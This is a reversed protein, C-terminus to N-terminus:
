NKYIMDKRLKSFCRDANFEEELIDKNIQEDSYLKEDNPDFKASLIRSIEQRKEETYREKLDLIHLALDKHYNYRDRLKLISIYEDYVKVGNTEFELHYKGKNSALEFFTSCTTEPVMKIPVEDDFRSGTYTPSIKLWEDKTTAFELDKKLKENCVQCSPVFNFLSLGIIPCKSKPLLHDLDFHNANDDLSLGVYKEIDKHLYRKGNYKGRNFDQLSAFPRHAIIDLLCADSLQKTTFIERWESITAGNVFDLHRNYTCSMGYSNIYAMNCYHCTKLNFGNKNFFDAIKPQYSTYDFIGEYIAAHHEDVGEGCYWLYKDVLFGFDGVLLDKLKLGHKLKVPEWRREMETLNFIKLYEDKLRDLDTPYKIKLM